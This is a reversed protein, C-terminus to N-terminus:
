KLLTVTIYRAPPMAAHALVGQGDAMPASLLYKKRRDAIAFKLETGLDLDMGTHWFHGARAHDFVEVENSLGQLLKVKPIVIDSSDFNDENKFNQGQLYAPLDAQGQTTAVENAM